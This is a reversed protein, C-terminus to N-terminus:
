GNTFDTYKQMNSMPHKWIKGLTLLGGDVICKKRENM